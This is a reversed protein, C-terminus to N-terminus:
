MQMADTKVLDCQCTRCCDPCDHLPDPAPLLPRGPGPPLPLGGRATRERLLQMGNIGHSLSAGTLRMIGADSWRRLGASLLLLLLLLLLLPAICGRFRAEGGHWQVAM